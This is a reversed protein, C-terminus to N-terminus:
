LIKLFDEENLVDKTTIGLKYLENSLYFSDPVSVGVSEMLSFNRFVEAPIGEAVKKGGHLVVVKDANLAESSIHTIYLVGINKRRALQFVFDFIEKRNVPDLLATIEDLILYRPQMVLVGAIAVKQKEGGSLMSPSTRLYKGIDLLESIELIRRKAEEREVALNELGFAIDEEVTTGVFQDDPNQFVLGVKAKLEEGIESTSFGDVFVSGKNPLFLGNALRAITSKGSGNSGLLAVFEGKRITLNFNQVAWKDGYSFFVNEFRIM